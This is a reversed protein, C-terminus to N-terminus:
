PTEAPTSSPGNEVMPGVVFYRTLLGPVYNRTVDEVQGEGDSFLVRYGTASEEVFTGWPLASPRTTM